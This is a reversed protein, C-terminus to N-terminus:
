RERKLEKLRNSNIGDGDDMRQKFIESIISLLQRHNM